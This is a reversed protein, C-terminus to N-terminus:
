IKTDLVAFIPVDSLISSKKVLVLKQVNNKRIILGRTYNYSKDIIQGIIETKKFKNMNQLVTENTPKKISINKNTKYVKYVKHVKHTKSKFHEVNDLNITFLGHINIYNEVHGDQSTYGIINKENMEANNVFGEIFDNSENCSSCRCLPPTNFVKNM